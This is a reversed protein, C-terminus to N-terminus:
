SKLVQRFAEQPIDVKGIRKLRDKGKKQRELLKDKRERHGGYIGALVNKRVAPIDERAVIKGGIAAQLAVKFQQRPIVDKLRKLLAKGVFVAKSRLVIHSLPAVIEGHVLVDMKVVDAVKYVTFEYDLSAFGSSITKLEDYFNYVLESLPLEYEFIVRNENPYEMKKMIGRREECLTIIGGVYESPSVINMLIWPEEIKDIRTRDPFSSASKAWIDEGNTLLIKYEVTPTTSILQLNYERELREQIIDAHLLGLFGCRFGFGM